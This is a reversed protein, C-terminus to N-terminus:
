EASAGIFISKVKGNSFGLILGGYISGAVLTISDSFSINICDKYAQEVTKYNSAISIGKNTKYDCPSVVTIMNIILDSEKKGILDIEIGLNTYKLTQHYEGDAGWLVSESKDIPEGINRILSDNRLGLKLKGLTEKQMLNFGIEEFDKAAYKTQYLISDADRTQNNNKSEIQGCAVFAIISLLIIIRAM